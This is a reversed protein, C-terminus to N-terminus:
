STGAMAAQGRSVSGILIPSATAPTRLAQYTSGNHIVVDGEYHVRGPEFAKAIPLRGPSGPPGPPGAVDAAGPRIDAVKQRIENSLETIVARLDSIPRQAESQMLERERRWTQREQALIQGLVDRLADPLLDHALQEERSM